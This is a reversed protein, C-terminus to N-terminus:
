GLRKIMNKMSGVSSKVPDTINETLGQREGRIIKFDIEQDLKKEQMIEKIIKVLQAHVAESLCNVDSVDYETVKQIGSTVSNISTLEGTTKSRGTAITQEVWQAINLNASWSVYLDNQYKQIQCFLLSRNMCLVIQEREEKGDLGWYWIKECDIRYNGFSGSNIKSLFRARVNECEDGLGFIVTQWSDVRRLNRPEAVPKGASLVFKPQHRLQWVIAIIVPVVLLGPFPTDAVLELALAVLLAWFLFTTYSPRLVDIKNKELWFKGPKDTLQLHNFNPSKGRRLLYRILTRLEEGTFKKLRDVEESKGRDELVIKYEFQYRHFPKEKIYITAEARETTYRDQKPLWCEFKVWPPHVYPNSKLILADIGENACIKVLAEYLSDRIEEAQSWISDKRREILPRADIMQPPAKAFDTFEADRTESFSFASV